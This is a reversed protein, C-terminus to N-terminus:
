VIFVTMRKPGHAGVVLSQEIDATKSPGAVFLGFGPIESIKSYAEHMNSVISEKQIVVFLHLTIFPLIRQSMNSEPVWIAGNEAVGVKGNIIMAEVKNLSDKSKLDEENMTSDIGKVASVVYEYESIEQKISDILNGKVSTVKVHSGELTKTITDILNDFGEFQPIEPLRAPQLDLDSIRKLINEKSSM